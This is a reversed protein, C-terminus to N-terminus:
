PTLAFASFRKKIKLGTQGTDTGHKENASGTIKVSKLVSSIHISGFKDFQCTQIIRWNEFCGM